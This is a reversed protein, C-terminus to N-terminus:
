RFHGEGTCKLAATKCNSPPPRVNCSFLSDENGNCIFDAVASTNSFSGYLIEADPHYVYDDFGAFGLEACAVIGQAKSYQFFDRCVTGWAGGHFVELVGELSSTGQVQSSLRIADTRNCDVQCLTKHALCFHITLKLSCHTLDISSNCSTHMCSHVIICVATASM